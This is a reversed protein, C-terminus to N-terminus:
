LLSNKTNRCSDGLEIINNTLNYPLAYTLGLFKDHSPTTSLTHDPCLVQSPLQNQRLPPQFSTTCRSSSIMNAAMSAWLSTHFQNVSHRGWKSSVFSEALHFGSQRSHCKIILPITQPSEWSVAWISWKYCIIIAPSRSSVQHHGSLLNPELCALTGNHMDIDCKVIPRM